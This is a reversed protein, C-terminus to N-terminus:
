KDKRRHKTGSGQVMSEPTIAIEAREALARLRPINRLNVGTRGARWARVVSASVGVEAAIAEISKTNSLEPWLRLQIAEVARPLPLEQHIM